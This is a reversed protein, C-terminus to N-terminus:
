YTNGGVWEHGSLNNAALYAEVDAPRFIRVGDLEYYPLSGMTGPTGNDKIYKVVASRQHQELQPNGDEDYTQDALKTNDFFSAHIRLLLLVGPLYTPPTIEEGEADYTGAQTMFKGTEKWWVYMVGQRPNNDEDLLPNAPPNSKAFAVLAAKNAAYLFLDLTM